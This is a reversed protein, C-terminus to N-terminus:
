EARLAIVPDVNSARRAPWFSAFLAIAAFAAGVGAFTTPDLPQIGFLMGRLYRAGAAAGVLGLSIGLSILLLGKRLVLALVQRRAAGLAMRVGIEQTRQVVAYALVGYIGIAALLGAV